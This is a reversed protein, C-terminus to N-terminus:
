EKLFKFTENNLRIVYIGSMLQSVDTAILSSYQTNTKNVIRRGYMDFIEFVSVIHGSSINIFLIESTPNPYVNIMQPIIRDDQVSSPNCDLISLFAPTNNFSYLDSNNISIEITEDAETLGDDRGFYYQLSNTSNSPIVIGLPQLHYDNGQSATGDLRYSIGLPYSIDNSNRMFIIEAVQQTCEIANTEVLDINIFTQPLSTQNSYTFNINSQTGSGGLIPSNGNPEVITLHGTINEIGALTSASFVRFFSYDTDYQLFVNDFHIGGLTPSPNFYDAVELAIPENYQLQLKSVNQFACDKFTLHYANASKRAYFVGYNSEEIFCRELMVNGQVPSLHNDSAYIECKVYDNEPRCNSKFVCDRITISVPITSEDLEFLNIAIGSWGNNEFRCNEILLNVVRQDTQYPEIDIGAEPLTGATGSFECYRVTMNQVNMISMGQRYHNLCRVDEVLINECYNLNGGDISIGDGGSEILTLGKITVNSSSYLNISHRFESDDIAAYEAKHMKFTAGYGILNINNCNGFRFLCDHYGNFRGPLAEVWVNPEFIITKNTLNWFHLSGVRWPEDQLDVIITDASSTIANLLASSADVTNYGFDSAYVTQSYAEITINLLCVFSILLKIKMKM